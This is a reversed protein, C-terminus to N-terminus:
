MMMRLAIYALEATEYPGRDPFTDDDSTRAPIIWWANDREAIFVWVEGIKWAESDSGFCPIARTRHILTGVRRAGAAALLEDNM